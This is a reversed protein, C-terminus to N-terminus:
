LLRHNSPKCKKGVGIKTLKNIETMGEKCLVLQEFGFENKKQVYMYFSRGTPSPFSLLFCKSLYSWAEEISKFEGEAFGRLWNGGVYTLRKVKSKKKM